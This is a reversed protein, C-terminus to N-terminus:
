QYSLNWVRIQHLPLLLHRHVLCDKCYHTCHTCDYCSFDGSKGCNTCLMVQLGERGDHRLMEHLYTDRYTLWEEMARKRQSSKDKGAPSPDSHQMDTQNEIYESFSNNSGSDPHVPLSTIGTPPATVAVVQTTSHGTEQNDNRHFAVTRAHLAYPHTIRISSHKRKKSTTM